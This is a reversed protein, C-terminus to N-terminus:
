KHNGISNSKVITDLRRFVQGVYCDGFPVEYMRSITGTLTINLVDTAHSGVHVYVMLTIIFASRLYLRSLIHPCLTPFILYYIVLDLM